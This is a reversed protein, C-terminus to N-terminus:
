NGSGPREFLARHVAEIVGPEQMRLLIGDGIQRILAQKEPPFADFAEKGERILRDEDDEPTDNDRQLEM